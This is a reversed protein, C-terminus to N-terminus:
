HENCAAKVIEDIGGMQIEAQLFGQNYCAPRSDNASCVQHTDFDILQQSQTDADVYYKKAFENFKDADYHKAPCHNALQDNFHKMAVDPTVPKPRAEM